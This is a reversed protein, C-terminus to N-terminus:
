KASKSRKLVAPEILEDDPLAQYEPHNQGGRIRYKLATIRLRISSHKLKDKM